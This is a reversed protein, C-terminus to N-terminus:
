KRKKARKESCVKGGLAIWLEQRSLRIIRRVSRVNRAWASNMLIIRHQSIYNKIWFQSMQNFKNSHPFGKISNMIGDFNSVHRSYLFHIVTDKETNIDLKDSPWTIILMLMLESCCQVCWCCMVAAIFELGSTLCCGARRLMQFDFHTISKRRDDFPHVM